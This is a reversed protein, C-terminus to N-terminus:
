CRYCYIKRKWKTETSEFVKKSQCEMELFDNITADVGTRWQLDKFLPFKRKAKTMRRVATQYCKWPQPETVLIDTLSSLQKLFSRLGNDGHNLHIWMTISLCLTVDFNERNHFALYDSLEEKNGEMIDLCLYTINKEFANNESAREILSSDIDIGLIYIDRTSYKSIFKYFLQTFDGANCGVDLILIKEDQSKWNNWLHSPFVSLREEPTNFQYYNIFNGFLVAGPDEKQTTVEQQEQM